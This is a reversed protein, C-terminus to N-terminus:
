LSVGSITLSFCGGLAKMHLPAEYFLGSPNFRLDLMELTLEGGVIVFPRRCPLWRM